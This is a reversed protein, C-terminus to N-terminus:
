LNVPLMLSKYSPEDTISIISYESYKNTILLFSIWFTKLPKVTFNSGQMFRNGTLWLSVFKSLCNNFNVHLASNKMIIVQISELPGGFLASKIQFYAEPIKALIRVFIYQAWHFISLFSESHKFSKIVLFPDHFLM